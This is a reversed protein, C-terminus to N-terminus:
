SRQGIATLPVPLELFGLFERRLQQAGEELRVKAIVPDPDEILVQRVADGDLLSRDVLYSEGGVSSRVERDLDLEESV